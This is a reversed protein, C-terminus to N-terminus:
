ADAGITLIAPNLVGGGANAKEGEDRIQTDLNHWRRLAEGYIWFKALAQVACGYMFGTIGYAQDAEHSTHKAFDDRALFTQVQESLADAPIAAEMLGAWAAGYDVVCKSYGDESNMRVYEAYENELGQKIKM